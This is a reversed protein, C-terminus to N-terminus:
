GGTGSVFVVEGEYRPPPPPPNIVAQMEQVRAGGLGAFLFGGNRLLGFLWDRYEPAVVFCGESTGPTGQRANLLSANFYRRRQPAYSHAVIDRMRMQSNSPDLGDLRLSLGNAGYYLEAGRAAGLSSSLSNYVNSFRDAIGDDNPDSGIGHAVAIPTDIGQGTQLDISYLRPQSSPKAFDVVVIASPGSGTDGACHHRTYSVLATDLLARDLRNGPQALSPLPADEALEAPAAEADLPEYVALIRARAAPLSACSLRSVQVARPSAISQSPSPSPGLGSQASGTGPQFTIEASPAAATEQALASTACLALAPTTIAVVFRILPAM